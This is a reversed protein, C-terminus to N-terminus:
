SAVGCRHRRGRRLVAHNAWAVATGLTAGSLSDHEIKIPHTISREADDGWPVVWAADDGVRLERREIARPEGVKNTIEINLEGAPPARSILRAEDVSVRTRRVPYRVYRAAAWAPGRAQLDCAIVWWCPAGDRLAAIRWLVESYSWSLLPVSAIRLQDVHFGFLSVRGGDHTLGAPLAVRAPDFTGDIEVTVREIGTFKFESM